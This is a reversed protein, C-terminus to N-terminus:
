KINDEGKVKHPALSKILEELFLIITKGNKVAKTKIKDHLKRPVHIAKYKTNMNNVGVNWVLETEQRTNTNQSLSVM